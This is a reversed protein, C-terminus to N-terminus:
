GFFLSWITTGAAAAVEGNDGGTTEGESRSSGDACSGDLEPEPEPHPELSGVARQGDSHISAEQEEAAAAAERHAATKQLYSKSREQILNIALIEKRLAEIEATPDDPASAYIPPM